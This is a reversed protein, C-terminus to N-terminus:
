PQVAQKEGASGDKVIHPTLFVLLETRSLEKAKKKFLWGAVPIDGLLPVKHVIDIKNESVLGGIVITQGDKLMVNTDAERTSTVPRENDPGVYGTIASVEPHVKLSVYDEENIHPTVRLKIGIQESYYGSIQRTKTETSWEYIPIPYNTGVLIQAEQNDLTAVRPYSLVKTDSRNKLLEILVQFQSFDLTGFLFNEVGTFPFSPKSLVPFTEVAGTPQPLPLYKQLNSDFSVRDFPATTPRKSGTAAIRVTWDIGLAENDSLSTELIKAEIIVQKTKRDLRGIVEEVKNLTTPIDTVVLQNTREDMGVKGRDSLIDKIAGGVVAANSYNLGYVKTTLNESKLRELTTVRIINRDKEYALGYTRLIMELAKEWPVDSLRMTVVGSVEPGSVINVNGKYALTRLVNHIDADKFDVTLMQDQGQDPQVSVADTSEEAFLFGGAPCVLGVTVSVAVSILATRVLFCIGRTMKM